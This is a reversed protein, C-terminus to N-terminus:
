DVTSQNKANFLLLENFSIMNYNLKINEETHNVTSTSNKDNTLFDNKQYKGKSQHIAICTYIITFIFCPFYWCTGLTCNFWLM